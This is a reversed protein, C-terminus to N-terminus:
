RPQSPLEIDSVKALFASLANFTPRSRFIGVAVKAARKLDENKARQQSGNTNSKSKITDIFYITRAARLILVATFIREDVDARSTWPGEDLVKAYIKDLDGIPIFFDDFRRGDIPTAGGYVIYSNCINVVSCHSLQPSHRV